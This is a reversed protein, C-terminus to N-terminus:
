SVGLRATSPNGAPDFDGLQHIAVPRGDANAEKLMDHLMQDSLEGGPLALTAQYREALPLLVDSVGQKEAIIIQQWPQRYLDGTLELRPELNEPLWVDVEGTALTWRAPRYDPRFVQPPANRADRLADWSVYGLFRAAKLAQESMWQWTKDDNVYPSGDPLLVRGVLRYHLGRPHLRRGEPNVEKLADALWQGKKHGAPTDLRYPDRCASLVTFDRMPRQTIQTADNLVRRLTAAAPAAVDTHRNTM